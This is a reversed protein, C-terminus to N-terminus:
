ISESGSNLGRDDANTLYGDQELIRITDLLFYSKIGSSSGKNGNYRYQVQAFDM